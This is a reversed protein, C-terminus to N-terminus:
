KRDTPEDVYLYTRRAFRTRNWQRQLWPMVWHDLGFARGAGGLMVIAAAIYWLVERGAMAGIIFMLSLGISVVAAIFTFLGGVLALGIAIEALVICAQFFFPAKSVLNDVLWTYIGLPHALLPVQTAAQSAAASAATTADAAAAGTAAYASAAATADAAQAGAAAAASAASTADAAQAGAAAAASAASTAEVATEAAAAASAASTGEVPVIFINGPKLWGNLVKTIGEILWMAGLFVRLIAVWYGRTKGAFHGGFVSRHNRVDLFEHKLYEWVQNVGAVGLFHLINIAHKALIALFGSLPVFFRGFGVHAVGWTAGISVMNGHYSSRHSRPLADRIDAVINHAATAGTQVATEVIQPLVKTGELYWGVDGVVYVEPYDPTQMRENVLLRGRKGEVYRDGGFQCEKLGCTGQTTAFKCLRNSCKGKVLKLNAAFECGQIGCTWVFTKAPIAQDGRLLVMDQGAGVIPSKLMVEVGTRRLYRTAKQQLRAPLTPLITELAEVVIFRVEQERIHHARCLSTRWDKLEGALEIGTFGAGAIVFTLYEARLKPDPEAAARRFMDEVHRRVRLADEFSWLTLAFERIGPIGFYEPEGGTGIVLYDYSYEARDSVLKRAAFDISSIRDVVVRVRKGGFIKAFSIQVSEPEVRGGAVEHLETMLTHFPNRDVLTIEVSRDRKFSRHLVKVAEVGAYGGGLVVIRTTDPRIGGKPNGVV